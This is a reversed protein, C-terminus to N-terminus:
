IHKNTKTRVLGLVQDTMVTIERLGDTRSHLTHSEWPSNNWGCDQKEWSLWGAVGADVDVGAGDASCSFM